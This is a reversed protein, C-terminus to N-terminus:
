IKKVKSRQFLKPSHTSCWAVFVYKLTRGLLVSGLVTFPQLHALGAIAIAAHQPFPSLSVAALGWSGHQQIVRSSDLWTKSDLLKPFLQNVLSDGYLSILWACAAAGIASGISVWLATRIWHNRRVLVASILLADNPIFVIFADLASLVAVLPLFWKRSAFKQLSLGIKKWKWKM